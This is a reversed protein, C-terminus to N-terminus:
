CCKSCSTVPSCLLIVSLVKRFQIRSCNKTMRYPEHALIFIRRSIWRILFDARSSCSVHFNNMQSEVIFYCSVLLYDFEQKSKMVGSSQFSLTMISSWLISRHYKIMVFVLFLHCSFCFLIHLLHKIILFNSCIFLIFDFCCDFFSCDEVWSMLTVLHIKVSVGIAIAIM